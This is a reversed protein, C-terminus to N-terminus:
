SQQQEGRETQTVRGKCSRQILWESMVHLFGCDFYHVFNTTMFHEGTGKNTWM